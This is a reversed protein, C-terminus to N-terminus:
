QVTNFLLRFLRLCFWNRVTQTSYSDTTGFRQIMAPYHGLAHLKYTELNFVRESLNKATDPQDEDTGNKATRAAERRAKAAAERPTDHTKYRPCVHDHFYRIVQGLVKTCQKFFSMSLLAHFRLKALAHWTALIFLLDLIAKECPQPFLGEFCPM